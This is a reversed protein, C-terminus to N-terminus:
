ARVLSMVTGVVRAASKARQAYGDRREARAVIARAAWFGARLAYAIAVLLTLVTARGESGYRRHYRLRSGWLLAPQEGARQTTSQGGHHRAVADPSYRITWGASRLRRCLDVEESYMHFSPDFGGIDEFATRRVLVCAAGVWDAECSTRSDSESYTPFSAGRMQRPLAFLVGIEDWLKPFDAFSAQFSGDSFVLRAGVAAATTYRDLEDVLATLTNTLLEADSNLLLVYPEIAVGVGRNNASGFGMNATNEIVTVEPFDERVMTASGDSSNNDVVIIRGALGEGHVEVSRIADALVERTNWSVLVVAARNAAREQEIAGPMMGLPLGNTVLSARM